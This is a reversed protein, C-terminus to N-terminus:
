TGIHKIHERAKRTQTGKSRVHLQKREKRSNMKKRANRARM